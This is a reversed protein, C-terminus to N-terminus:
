PLCTAENPCKLRIGLWGTKSKRRLVTHKASFCCIGIKYDKTQGSRPEFTSSDLVGVMVGCIRNSDFINLSFRFPYSLHSIMNTNTIMFKRINTNDELHIATHLAIWDYPVKFLLLRSIFCMYIMHVHINLTLGNTHFYNMIKRKKQKFTLNIAIVRKYFM